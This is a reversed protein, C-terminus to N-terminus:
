EVGCQNMEARLMPLGEKLRRVGREALGVSQHQQPRARRVSFVFQDHSKGVLEAVAREADTHLVISVSNSTFGFHHMWKGIQVRNARMDNTILVYGVANTSLGTLIMVKFLGEESEELSIEGGKTIFGFDAQVEAEFQGEKRRRHQFVSKGRQCVVCRPDFPVHGQLRHQQLAVEAAKTMPSIFSLDSSQCSSPSSVASTSPFNRCGGHGQEDWEKAKAPRLHVWPCGAFYATNAMVAGSKLDRVRFGNPNQSFEWGLRCLTTTSLINHRIDGVLTKVCARREQKVGHEESVMSVLAVVETEGLMNVASGNAARFKNSDTQQKLKGGYIGVFKSSM